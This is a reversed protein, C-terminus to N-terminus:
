IKGNEERESTESQCNSDHIGERHVSGSVARGGAAGAAGGGGGRGATARAVLVRHAEVGDELVGEVLDGRAASWPHNSETQFMKQRMLSILIPNSRPKTSGLFEVTALYEEM